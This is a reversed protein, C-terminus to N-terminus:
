FMCQQLMITAFGYVCRTSRIYVCRTSRFVAVSILCSASFRVSFFNANISIPEAICLAEQWVTHVAEELTNRPAVYASADPGVESRPLAKRAVKGSALRPLEALLVFASPVMYQPLKARAAAALAIEDATEPTVYAVLTAAQTGADQLVVVADQVGDATALVAEVEGLELRFGRLKVQNDARGVYRCMVVLKEMLGRGNPWVMVSHSQLTQLLKSATESRLVLFCWDLALCAWRLNGDPMWAVVDGTRYMRSYSADDGPQTFLSPLFSEATLEPQGAYGRAIGVGSAFLEGPVGIPLPRLSRPDLVYLRINHIPRGIPVSGMGSFGTCPFNAVFVSAETPGYTNDVTANPMLRRAQVLLAPNLVEGILAM